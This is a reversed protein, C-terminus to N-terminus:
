FFRIPGSALGLLGGLVGIFGGAFLMTEWDLAPGGGGNLGFIAIGVGVAFGIAFGIGGSRLRTHIQPRSETVTEYEELEPEGSTALSLKRFGRATLWAFLGIGVFLKIANIGISLSTPPEVAYPITLLIANLVFLIVISPNTCRTWDQHHAVRRLYHLSYMVGAVTGVVTSVTVVLLQFTPSVPPAIDAIKLLAALVLATALPIAFGATLVHTTVIWFTSRRKRGSMM